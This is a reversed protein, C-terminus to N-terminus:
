RNRLTIWVCAVGGRRSRSQLGVAIPPVFVPYMLGDVCEAGRPPSLRELMKLSLDRMHHTWADDYGGAVRDYGERVLASTSDGQRVLLKLIRAALALWHRQAGRVRTGASM